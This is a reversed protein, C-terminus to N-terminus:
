SVRGWELPACRSMSDSSNSRVKWSCTANQTSVSGFGGSRKLTCHRGAASRPRSNTRCPAGITNSSSAIGADLIHVLAFRATNPSGVLRTYVDVWVDDGDPRQYCQRGHFETRSEARLAPAARDSGDHDARHTLERFCRGVLDSTSRGVLEALAGNASRIIREGDDELSVLAMAIPADDFAAQEFPSRSLEDM